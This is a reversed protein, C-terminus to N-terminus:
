KGVKRQTVSNQQGFTVPGTMEFLAHASYARGEACEVLNWMFRLFDDRHSWRCYIDKPSAEAAGISLEARFSEFPDIPGIGGVRLLTQTFFFGGRKQAAAVLDDVLEAVTAM